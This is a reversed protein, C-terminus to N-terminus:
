RRISQNTLASPFPFGHGQHNPKPADTGTFYWFEYYAARYLGKVPDYLTPPEYPPEKTRDRFLRDSESFHPPPRNLSSPDNAEAQYEITISGARFRAKHFAPAKNAGVVPTETWPHGSNQIRVTETYTFANDMAKKEWTWTAEFTNKDFDEVTVQEIGSGSPKFSLVLARAEDLTKGTAVAHWVQRTIQGDLSDEEYTRDLSSTNKNLTGLSPRRIYFAAQFKIHTANDAGDTPVQVLDRMKPTGIFDAPAFDHVTASTDLNKITVRVPDQRLFMAQLAKWQAQVDSAPDAGKGIFEGDINLNHEFFLTVDNEVIEARQHLYWRTTEPFSYQGNNITILYAM